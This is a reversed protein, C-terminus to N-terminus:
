NKLIVIILFLRLSGYSILNRINNRTNNDIRQNVNELNAIVILIYILKRPRYRLILRLDLYIKKMSYETVELDISYRPSSIAVTSLLFFYILLFKM